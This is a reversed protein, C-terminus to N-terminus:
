FRLQRPVSWTAINVMNNRASLSLSFTFEWAFVFRERDWWRVNIILIHMERLSCDLNTLHDRSRSSLCRYVFMLAATTCELFNIRSFFVRLVTRDAAPPVAWASNLRAVYFCTFLLQWWQASRDNENDVMVVNRSSKRASSPLHFSICRGPRATAHVFRSLFFSSTSSSFWRITRSVVQSFIMQRRLYINSFVKLLAVSDFSSKCWYAAVVFLFRLHSSNACGFFDLSLHNNLM